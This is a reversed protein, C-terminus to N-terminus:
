ARIHPTSQAPFIHNSNRSLHLSSRSRSSHSLYYSFLSVIDYSFHRQSGSNVRLAHHDDSTLGSGKKALALVLWFVIPPASPKPAAM